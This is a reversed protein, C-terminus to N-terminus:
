VLRRRACAEIREREAAATAGTYAAASLGTAVLFGAVRDVESVTLCYVLGPGPRAAVWDAM